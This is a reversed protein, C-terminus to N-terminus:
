YYIGILFLKLCFVALHSFSRLSDFLCLELSALEGVKPPLSVSKPRTEREGAKTGLDGM